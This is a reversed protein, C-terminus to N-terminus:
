PRVEPMEDWTRGDLIRGAAKRDVRVMLDGDVIRCPNRSGRRKSSYTDAYGAPVEDSLVWEGRQKFFFPVGAAECQGHISRAWDPKMPRAGPGSEGGVIVWDLGPGGTNEYGTTTNYDRGLLADYYAGGVKTPVMTPDVFGLLPELSVFRVAAPTQMLHGIRDLYDASEVAVGLWLNKLPSPFPGALADARVALHTQEMEVAVGHQNGLRSWKFADCLGSPHGWWDSDVGDRYNPTIAEDKWKKRGNLCGMFFRGCETCCPQRLFLAASTKGEVARHKPMPVQRQPNWWDAFFSAMREARKTLVQFTHQPCDAIIQLVCVIFEDPVAPHFLDSMSCVFVRRPKRWHRPEDLRDKHLTVRFPDDAPYGYRGRLRNATRRASCHDCGASIPTCGTAPNWTAETREITTRNM